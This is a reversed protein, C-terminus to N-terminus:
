SEVSDPLRLVIILLLDVHVFSSITIFVLIVLLIYVTFITKWISFGKLPINGPINHHGEYKNIGGKNEPEKQFLSCTRYRRETFRPSAKRNPSCEQTM